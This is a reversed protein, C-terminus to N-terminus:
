TTGEESHSRRYELHHVGFRRVVRLVNDTGCVENESLDDLLILVAM